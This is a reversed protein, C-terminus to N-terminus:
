RIRDPYVDYNRGNVSVRVTKMELRKADSSRNGTITVADGVKLTTPTLGASQTRAPPALTVEWVQGDAIIQMTAHPGNLSVPRHVTGSVQSQKDSQGSWGHHALASDALVGLLLAMSLGHVAKQM